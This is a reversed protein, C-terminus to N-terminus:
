SKIVQIPIATIYDVFISTQSFLSYTFIGLFLQDHHFYLSVTILINGLGIEKKGTNDFTVLGDTISTDGYVKPKDFDM